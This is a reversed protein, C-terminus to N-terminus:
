RLGVMTVFRMPVWVQNDNGDLEVLAGTVGAREETDVITGLSEVQVRDGTELGSKQGRFM